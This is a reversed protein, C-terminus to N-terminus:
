VLRRGKAKEDRLWDVFPLNYPLTEADIHVREALKDKLVAKGEALWGPIKLTQVPHDRFLKIASEHLMDTLILTGDLDVILPCTDEYVDDVLTDLSIVGNNL